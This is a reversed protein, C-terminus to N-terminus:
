SYSYKQLEGQRLKAIGRSIAYMAGSNKSDNGPLRKCHVVLFPIWGCEVESQAEGEERIESRPSIPLGEGYYWRGTVRGLPSVGRGWVAEVLIEEARAADNELSM